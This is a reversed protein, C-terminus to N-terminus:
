MPTTGAPPEIVQVSCCATFMRRPLGPPTTSVTFPLRWVVWVWNGTVSLKVGPEVDADLGAPPVAELGEPYRWGRLPTAYARPTDEREPDCGAGPDAGRVTLRTVRPQARLSTSESSSAARSAADPQSRVESPSALTTSTFVQPKMWAALCSDM